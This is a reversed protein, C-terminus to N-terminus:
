RLGQEESPRSAVAGVGLRALVIALIEALPQPGKKGAARTLRLKDALPQAEAAHEKAPVQALALHLDPLIKEYPTGHDLHFALLKDLIYGRERLSPHRFVQRGAVMAFAIRCFRCAVKVHSLRPDKGATKWTAALMRFHANCLILNDAIGM